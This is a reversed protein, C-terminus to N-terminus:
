YSEVQYAEFDIIVKCNHNTHSKQICKLAKQKQRLEKKSDKLVRKYYKIKDASNKITGQIDRIEHITTNKVVKVQKM